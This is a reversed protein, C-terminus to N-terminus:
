CSSHILLETIWKHSFSVITYVTVVSFKGSIIDINRATMDTLSVFVYKMYLRNTRQHDLKKFILMLPANTIATLGFALCLNPITAINNQM